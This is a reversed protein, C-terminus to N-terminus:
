RAPRHRHIMGHGAFYIVAIEAGRAQEPLWKSLHHAVADRLRLPEHAIESQPQFAACRATALVDAMAEADRVAYRLPLVQEAHLYDGVGILVAAGAREGVAGM